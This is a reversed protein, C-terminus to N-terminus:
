KKKIRQEAFSQYKKKMSIYKICFMYIFKLFPDDSNDMFTKPKWM